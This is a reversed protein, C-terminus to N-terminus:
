RPKSGRVLRRRPKAPAPPPGLTGAAERFAIVTRKAVAVQEPLIGNHRHQRYKAETIRWLWDFSAADLNVLRYPEETTLFKKGDGNPIPPPGTGGIEDM